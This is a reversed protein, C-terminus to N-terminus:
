STKGHPLLHRLCSGSGSWGSFSDVFFDTILEITVGILFGVSLWQMTGWSSCSDGIGVDCRLYSYSSSIYQIMLM